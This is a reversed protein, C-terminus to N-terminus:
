SASTGARTGREGADLVGPPETVLEKGPVVGLMVMGSEPQQRRRDHVVTVGLHHECVALGDEGGRIGGVGLPENAM